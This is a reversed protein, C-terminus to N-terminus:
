GDSAAAHTLGQRHAVAAAQVRTSVGLKSLINSVHVSATKRSIFLEEAIESNSRGDAVLVLVERERATLGLDDAAAPAPPEVAESDSESAPLRARRVLARVEELLPMAGMRQALAQAESAAQAAAALDGAGSLAEAHRFLAYALPYPENMPRCAIVASGWAQAEDSGRPRSTEAQVLALHGHAAPTNAPIAEAEQGLAALRREADPALRGQDRAALARQAEIRAGLSILPWKYRPEEGADARSLAGEIIRSATDLDGDTRALEADVTTLPLAFQAASTSRLHERAEDLDSRAKARRGTLAHLEARTLLLTGAFVGPGVGEPAAAIMAEELRGARLLAEAKNGRMFAGATRGVGAREAIELGENVTAVAEDYRGWMLLADSLNVAARTATWVLGAGVATVGAERVLTLGEEVQGSVAHATGFTVQAELGEEIAGVAQAAEMAREALGTARDAQTLRLMARALSGLVYASVRSPLNPPLLGVAQELVAVSEDERGLDSLITARRVLLMARQELTGGYGVEALAQDILALARDVAGAVGAAQAAADLLLSHEIGARQEADPVQTWLELALEFHRQAASPAGAAAAARGARVSAPLARALDHAALWHHALMSAADLGPGALEASGELAEAYARHLRAREGPLLDDHIAARALAHRFAYGRGSADVVLLQQDVTERLAVYLEDEPLRAVIALLDETVSRAAASAVRLVHQADPSLSEARALLVDRLSPPLYDATGGDRVAGLLEEVFLPIGESREALRDVLETSPREGLIAEIQAAVEQPGLRDLELRDVVRQQEWRAAMRRLPHGRHLEDSRVTLVMLLRWGVARAVLVAMLDLTARDAWQVDEFVLVLPGGSALRGILSLILELIRAPDREGDSPDAAGEGLEPVLRGIETRASGLLTELEQADLEGALSRLMDVLPAFPIGGGDLEVCGGALVRAGAARARGVLEGVLRSKGVGAEGGVLVTASEGELVRELLGSLAASETQRGVLVPSVLSAAV